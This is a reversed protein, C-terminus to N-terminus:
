FLRHRRGLRSVNNSWSSHIYRRTSIFKKHYLLLKGDVCPHFNPPSLFINLNMWGYKNWLCLPRFSGLRLTRKSLVRINHSHRAQIFLVCSLHDMHETTNTYCKISIYLSVHHAFLHYSKVSRHKWMTPQFNNKAKEKQVIASSVTELNKPINPQTQCNPRPVSKNQPCKNPAQRPSLSSIM